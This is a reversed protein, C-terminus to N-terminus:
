SRSFASPRSPPTRRTSVVRIKELFRLYRDLDDDLPITIDKPDKSGRQEKYKTMEDPKL